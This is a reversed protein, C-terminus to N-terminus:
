ASPTVVVNVPRTLVAFGEKELKFTAKMSVKCGEKCTEHFEEPITVHVKLGSDTVGYAKKTYYHWSYGGTEYDKISLVVFSVEKRELKEKPVLKLPASKARAKLLQGHAKQVCSFQKDSLSRGITLWEIFSDLMGDWFTVGFGNLDGKLEKIFAPSISGKNLGTPITEM